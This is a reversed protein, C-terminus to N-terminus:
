PTLAEVVAHSDELLRYRSILGNAVVIDIYFLSTVLKGTAVMKSTFEGSIIVFDDQVVFREVNASIPETAAWLQKYFEAIEAKSNRWGLWPAINKNGPVYWDVNEAILPLIDEIKRQSLAAFYAEVIDKTSNEMNIKL